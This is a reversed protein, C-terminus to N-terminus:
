VEMIELNFYNSYDNQISVALEVLIEVHKSFGHNPKKCICRILADEPDIKLDLDAQDVKEGCNICFQVGTSIAACVIDSGIEQYGSHGSCEFGVFGSKSKYVRLTTM